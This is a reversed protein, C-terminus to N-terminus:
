GLWCSICLGSALRVGLGLQVQGCAAVVAAASGHGAWGLLLSHWKIMISAWVKPQAALHQVVPQLLLLVV